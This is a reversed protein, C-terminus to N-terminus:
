RPCSTDGIIRWRKGDILNIRESFATCYVLGEVGFAVNSQVNPLAAWKTLLADYNATSINTHDLMEEMTTVNKIDWNSIDGSFSTAKRFMSGMNTVKSVNWQNVDGNFSTAGSFMSGMNTVNSVNWQSIDGNFSTADSFMKSMDNVNSVNWTGLNGNFSDAGSFIGSMNTVKSVNWSNLDGTFSDANDFMGEMNTVNSVDWDNLDGNFKSCGAFMSLMNTVKGVNWNSINGNFSSADVFVGRMDIITSVDWDNLDEANFMTCRAFIGAISTVRSLDPVDKANYIMNNCGAFAGYFSEWKIDGWQEITQLKHADKGVNISISPFKGSVKVTYTNATVYTHSPLTTQNKEITGDGWDITYDYTLEKTVGITITENAETTKWTTIFPEVVNEVAVTIDASAKHTGDSVEVSITYSTTTEFDLKKDKALSLEGTDTLEFLADSNKTLTFILAKNEPDTAVVKGIVVDDAINEAVTFTQASIEPAKDAIPPTQPQEDDNSCSFTVLLMLLIIGKTLHIKM